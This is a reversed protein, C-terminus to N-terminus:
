NSADHEGLNRTFTASCNPTEFVTVSKLSCWGKSRAAVSGELQKAWLEALNEATPIESIIVIKGFESEHVGLRPFPSSSEPPKLLLNALSDNQFLILAHDYVKDIHTMMGEKMFGFDMLMGSESGIQKLKKGMVTLIIKYRHGHINRCKSEHLPIRHGCDIGIERTIEYFDEHNIM